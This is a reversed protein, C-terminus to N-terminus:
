DVVEITAGHARMNQDGTRGAYDMEIPSPVVRKSSETLSGTAFVRQRLSAGAVRSSARKSPPAIHSISAIYLHCISLLHVGVKVYSTSPLTTIIFHRCSAVCRLAFCRLM